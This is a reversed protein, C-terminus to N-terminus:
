IKSLNVIKTLELLYKLKIDDTFLTLFKVQM